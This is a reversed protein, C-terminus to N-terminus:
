PDGIPTFVDELIFVVQTRFGSPLDDYKYVDPVEGRMRRQRKSFIDMVGM